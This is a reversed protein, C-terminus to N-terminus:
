PQIAVQTGDELDAPPSLVVLENAALGSLIRRQGDRGDGADVNRLRARGDVVVFVASRGDRTVVAEAPVTVGPAVPASGAAPAEGLFSVRVGMDPVIRADRELFAIRVKVTAKSRDATPVIAIVEAPIRWDPYANLVAEVKQGPKVRGIFSENVDVQIELSAMDVITGIGTRTFGGGGSVPSVIEGPQAAKVTVVGAFPARVITNDVGLEAMALGEGAVNVARRAADLQAAAIDREARSQDLLSAAILQRGALEGNRQLNREALALAAEARAVESRAAALRAAALNREADADTAELRALVEGEAVVQGEEILVEDVKGTIKASVTAIRRATVYGSADLVSSAVPAGGASEVTAATATRVPVPQPRLLWWAGAVLVVALVAAVLPWRRPGSPPPTRASRDIRLEDILPNSATM